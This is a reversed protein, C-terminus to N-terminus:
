SKDAVFMYNNKTAWETFKKNTFVIDRKKYKESKVGNAFLGQAEPTLVYWTIWGHM